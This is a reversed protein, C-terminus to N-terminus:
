KKLNSLVELVFSALRDFEPEFAVDNEYESTGPTTMWMTCCLLAAMRRTDEPPNRLNDETPSFDFGKESRFTLKTLPPRGTESRARVWTLVLHAVRRWEAKFAPDEDFLSKGLPEQLGVSCLLSAMADISEPLNQIHEKTPVFNEGLLFTSCEQETTMM